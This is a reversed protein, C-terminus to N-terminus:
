EPPTAARLLAPVDLDQKRVFGMAGCHRLDAPLDEAEHTSVLLVRTAPRELLIRRTAEIGSIGPLRVDMVVLDPRIRAACEVAEEGSRAQGM